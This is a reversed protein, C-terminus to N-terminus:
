RFFEDIEEDTLEEFSRNRKVDQSGEQPQWNPDYECEYMYQYTNFKYIKQPDQNLDERIKQAIQITKENEDENTFVAYGGNDSIFTINYNIDGTKNSFYVEIIDFDIAEFQAGVSELNQCDKSKHEM